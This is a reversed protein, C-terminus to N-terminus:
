KFRGLRQEGRQLILPSLNDRLGKRRVQKDCPVDNGKRERKGRPLSPIGYELQSSLPRSVPFVTSLIGSQGIEQGERSPVTPTNAYHWSLFYIAWSCLTQTLHQGMTKRGSLSMPAQCKRPARKRWPNGKKGLNHEHSRNLIHPWIERSPHLSGQM